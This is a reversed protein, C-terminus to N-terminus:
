RSFQDKLSTIKLLLTRTSRRYKPQTFYFLIPDLVSNMSAFPRTSKYVVSLLNRLECSATPFTRVLLYLTKTVHFPLFSIAFVLMVIIIMRVAKTKKEVRSHGRAEGPRCLVKAMKCYLVLIVLFPLVFGVCTLAIGYPFYEPAREPVSLDYCVTRNRQVGTAAFEFTPACLVVVSGWVCACIIWALRRGGRKPWPTMPHCIGLYRQVSICTLFFISGHLNSYFQFRVMRCALDGFPWYDRSAYNYVLLPLSCVYLFDAVALNLMYIKTRTLARRCSWIRLIIIFNLPLGFIFVLSYVCPLLYRKFDENYTCSPLASSSLNSAM